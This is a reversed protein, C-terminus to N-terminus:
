KLREDFLKAKVSKVESQLSKLRKELDSIDEASKVNYRDALECAAALKVQEMTDLRKSNARFPFIKATVLSVYGGFSFREATKRHGFIVGM